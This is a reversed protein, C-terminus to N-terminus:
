IQEVTIADGEFALHGAISELGDKPTEYSWAANELVTSKTDISYFTATGLATDATKDSKDFFAMAVDARPVYVIPEKSGQTLEIANVTEGYVAGRAYVVWKGPLKRLTIDDTM